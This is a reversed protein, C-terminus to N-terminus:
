GNEREQLKHKPSQPEIQQVAEIFKRSAEFVTEFAEITDTTLVLYTLGVAFVGIRFSRVKPPLRARKRRLRM